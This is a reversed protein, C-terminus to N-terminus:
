ISLCGRVDFFNLAGSYIDILVHDDAPTPEPVNGSLKIASPHQLEKVEFGRM